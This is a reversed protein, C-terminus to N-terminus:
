TFVSCIDKITPPCLRRALWCRDEIEQVKLESSRLPPFTCLVFLLQEYGSHVVVVYYVCEYDGAVVYNAGEGAM